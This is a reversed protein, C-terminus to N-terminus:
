GQGEATAFDQAFAGIDGAGQFLVLDGGQLRSKLHRRLEDFSAPCFIERGTIEEVVNALARSDCGPLPVEGASYTPLLILNEVESLLSAFEGFLAQTRSYRHPQFVLVPNHDPWSEALAKLCARLETPHHGYDSVLVTDGSPLALKGTVELRRSVGEYSQIGAFIDESEVGEGVAVAVAALLNSINHRGPMALHVPHREGGPMHLQFSFGLGKPVIDTARFDAQADLGYTVVRHGGVACLDAAGPDDLCLVASGLVPLNGIFIKFCERLREFSDDFSSLHEADVNTVVAVEPQMKLFTGDSEDAEVVLHAGVGLSGNASAALIKGGVICTPDLGGAVLLASLMSTTTTKGHSGAVAIGRKYRMLSALMDGRGVLVRGQQEAAVLEVNDKPVAASYVVLAADGIQEARHGISVQVGLQRLRGTSENPQLDSGSVKWGLNLMVEALGCMGSGGVGIFHLHHMNDRKSGPTLPNFDGRGLDIKPKSVNM